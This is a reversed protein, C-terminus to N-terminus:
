QVTLTVAGSSTTTGSSGTATITYVGATTPPTIANGNVAAATKAPAPLLADVCLTVASCDSSAILRDRPSPSPSGAFRMQPM